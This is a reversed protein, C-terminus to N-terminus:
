KVTDTLIGAKPPRFKIKPDMPINLIHGRVEGVLYISGCILILDKPGTKKIVMDFAQNVQPIISVASKHIYKEALPAYLGPDKSRWNKPRSITLSTLLPVIKSFLTESDKDGLMGIIGHIRIHEKYKEKLFKELVRAGASNHACDLLIQRGNFQIYELRGPWTTKGIGELARCLLINKEKESIKPGSPNNRRLINQHLNIQCLNNQFLYKIASYATLANEKQHCGLLLTQFNQPLCSKKPCIFPLKKQQAQNKLLRRVYPRPDNCILPSKLAGTKELAIAKLTPGLTKTHDFDVNTLVTLDINFASTADLRGGLGAEFVLANCGQKIFMLYAAACITEFFSPCGTLPDNICAQVFPKIDNVARAFLEPDITDNNIAFRERVVTLHPSTFLGTKYGAAMLGSSIMRSVSGKGNTGIVQIFLPKEYAPGHSELSQAILKLLCSIKTLEYKTGSAILSYLYDLSEKYTKDKRTM